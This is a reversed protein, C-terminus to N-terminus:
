EIVVEVGIDDGWEPDDIRDQRYAAILSVFEQAYGSQLRSLNRIILRYPPRIKNMETYFIMSEAFAESGRGHWPVSGLAEALGNYFDNESSWRSADVEITKAADSM